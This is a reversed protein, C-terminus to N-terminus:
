GSIGTVNETIIAKKYRSGSLLYSKENLELTPRM